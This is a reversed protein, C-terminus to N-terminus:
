QFYFHTYYGSCIVPHIYQSTRLNVVFVFQKPLAVLFSLSKGASLVLEYIDYLLSMCNYKYLIIICNKMFNKRLSKPIIQNFCYITTSILVKSKPLFGQLNLM